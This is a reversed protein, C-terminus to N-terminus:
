CRIAPASRMRTLEIGLGEAENFEFQTMVVLVIAVGGEGQPIRSRFGGEM